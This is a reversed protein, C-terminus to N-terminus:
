LARRILTLDATRTQGPRGIVGQCVRRISRCSGNRQGPEVRKPGYSLQYLAHKALMLDDTRDRRAGGLGGAAQCPANERDLFDHIGAQIGMPGPQNSMTFYPDDRRQLSALRRHLTPLASRSFIDNDPLSLYLAHTTATPGEYPRRSSVGRM